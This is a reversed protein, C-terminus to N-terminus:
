EHWRLLFLTKNRAQRFAVCAQWSEQEQTTAYAWEVWHPGTYRNLWHELEQINTIWDEQYYLPRRPWPVIALHKFDHWEPLYM